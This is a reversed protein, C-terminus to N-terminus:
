ESSFIDFNDGEGWKKQKQQVFDIVTDDLLNNSVQLLSKWSILNLFRNAHVFTSLASRNGCSREM